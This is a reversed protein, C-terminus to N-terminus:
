TPERAELPTVPGLHAGDAIIALAEIEPVRMRCWLNGRQGRVRRLPDAHAPDADDVVESRSHLTTFNNAAYQNPNLDIGDPM